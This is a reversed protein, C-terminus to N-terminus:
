PITLEIFLGNEGGAFITQENLFYISHFNEKTNTELKQWSNGGDKTYLIHGNYGCVVGQNENIFDINEYHQRASLAKNNANVIKWTEGQNETKYIGGEWGCVFGVNRSPFDIDFFYDNRVNLVQYSNGGDVTKQVVGYGAIFGINSDIFLISRAAFNLEEKDFNYWQTSSKFIEGSAYARNTIIDTKTPSHMYIDSFAAYTGNIIMEWNDGGNITRLIKGGHGVIQGISDNYFHIGNLTQLGSVANINIASDQIREWTNGGNSTKFIYGEEYRSGGVAFGINQNIFYIDNIRHDADIEIQRIQTDIKEKLCSSLGLFFITSFFLIQTAKKIRKYIELLFLILQIM